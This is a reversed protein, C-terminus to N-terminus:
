KSGGVLITQASQQFPGAVVRVWLATLTIVGVALALMEVAGVNQAVLFGVTWLSEFFKGAWFALSAFANIVAVIISPLALFVSAVSILWLVVLVLIAIACITFLVSRAM